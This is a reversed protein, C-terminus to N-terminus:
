MHPSLWSSTKLPMGSARGKRAMEEGERAKGRGENGNREKRREGL